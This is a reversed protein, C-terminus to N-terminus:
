TSPVESADQIPAVKEPRDEARNASTAPIPNANSLPPLLICSRVPIERSRRPIAARATTIAITPSISPPSSVLM